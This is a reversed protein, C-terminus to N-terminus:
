RDPGPDPWGLLEALRRVVWRSEDPSFGSDAGRLGAVTRGIVVDESLGLDHHWAQAREVLMQAMDECLEYRARYEDRGIRLRGRPDRYLEDFSPPIFTQDDPSGSM